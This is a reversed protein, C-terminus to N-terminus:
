FFIFNEIHWWGRKVKLIGLLTVLTSVVIGDAVEIRLPSACNENVLLTIRQVGGIVLLLLRCKFELSRDGQSQEVERVASPNPWM